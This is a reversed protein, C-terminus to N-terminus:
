LSLIFFVNVTEDIFIKRTFGSSHIWYKSKINYKILFCYRIIFNIIFTNLECDHKVECIVLTRDIHGGKEDHVVDLRHSLIEWVRQLM